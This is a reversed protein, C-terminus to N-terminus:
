TRTPMLFRQPLIRDLAARFSADVPLDLEHAQSCAKLYKVTLLKAVKRDTDTTCLILLSNHVTSKTKEWDSIGFFSKVFETIRYIAWSFQDSTNRPKTYKHICARVNSKETDNLPISNIILEASQSLQYISM